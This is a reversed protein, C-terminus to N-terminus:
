ALEIIQPDLTKINHIANASTSTIFVQVNIEKLYDILLQVRDSDLHVFLEDLLIVPTFNTKAIITEIQAMFVSILMAKQEGTSLFKACLKKDAHFTLLDTKHVGFNTKGSHADKMRSEALKIKYDRLFNEESIGESDLTLGYVDNLQDLNNIDEDPNFINSLTIYAKPFLSAVDKLHHRMYALTEYRFKQINFASKSLKSELIDLWTVDFNNFNNQLHKLRQSQYHEYEKLNAAHDKFIGYVLRDLFKLRASRPGIFLLNMQPTLWLINIFKALEFTSINNGNHEVQRKKKAIDYSSTIRSIGLNAGFVIESKWSNVHDKAPLDLSASRIGKGPSLYSIAELINTKGTGNPGTILVINSSIELEINAFNRYNNLHINSIRSTQIM